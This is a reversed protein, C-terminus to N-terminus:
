VCVCFVAVRWLRLCNLIYQVKIMAVSFLVNVCDHFLYTVIIDPTLKSTHAQM